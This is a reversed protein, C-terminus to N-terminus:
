QADHNQTSDANAPSTSADRADLLSLSTYIPANGLLTPVLMAAFCAGLMPLLMTFSATMETILVIGTVPARVVGTFFAAMGVIAFANAPADLNPVAHQSVVFFLLGIQAGLALIPAFLGGPTATAYSVPGLIFRLVFVTFLAGPLFGGDLTHQALREGGGVVDPAFWAILGVLGGIVAARFEIPRRKFGDILALASLIARNYAVALLGAIVGLAVFAVNASFNPYPLPAVHFQPTDGLFFRAVAMATASAGLASIAIQTEFRRVLEELVFIAGAIPANFATALGAGAGAAILVRCDCWPRRVIKAIFYGLSAGIQVSPGERGLALGSGISLIGGALKVPILQWSAPSVSGDLVAETHPIGSGSARPAFRRVLWAAVGTAAACVLITVLPGVIPIQYSVQVVADRWLNAKDLCLRFIAGVLGAFAGVVLSLIAIPFLHDRDTAPADPTM